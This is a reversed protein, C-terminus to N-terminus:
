SLERALTTLMDELNGQFITETNHWSKKVRHDTIRDQLINYTRIKESRDGTGIQSKRNSGEEEAEKKLTLEELKAELISLARERNKLQSRESQCRVVIGTPKHTIRVATEVKNVNQGGAGGSRTFDIELDGENISVQERKRVPLVAVSATSTHVRGQKETAPIRQVRHVGAEHRLLSYAGKGEVSFVVEKYGGLENKSESLITSKWGRSTLFKGYMLFLDYAFISAEDGGAGARIEMVIEKPEEKEEKDKELIQKMHLYLEEKQKTLVNIEEEAVDKMEPTTYLLEEAESIKKKLNEYEGYLFKTKINKKLEEDM